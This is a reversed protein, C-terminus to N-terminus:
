CSGVLGLKRPGAYKTLYGVNAASRDTVLALNGKVYACASRLSLHSANSPLSVLRRLRGGSLEWYKIELKPEPLSGGGFM